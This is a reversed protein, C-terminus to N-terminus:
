PGLPYVLGPAVIAGLRKAIIHFSQVSLITEDKM